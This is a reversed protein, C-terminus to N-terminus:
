YMGLQSALNTDSFGLDIAKQMSQQSADMQGLQKQRVSKFFWMDANEPEVYEYIQLFKDIYLNNVDPISNRTVSYMVIGIYSLLRSYMGAEIKDDSEALKRNNDIEKKWWDFDNSQLANVYLQKINNEKNLFENFKKFYNKFNPSDIFKDLMDKSVLQEDGSLTKYAAEFDKLAFYLDGNKIYESTNSKYDPMQMNFSVNSKAFLFAMAQLIKDIPPWEHKGDFVLTLVNMNSTLPSEPPYYQEVFNFDKLGIITALPFNLNSISQLPAGAGCMLVGDVKQSGSFNFAMRAGGSFGALFIKEPELGLNIKSSNINQLIRDMYDQQNNEVNNLGIITCNYYTVIDKFYSLAMAGNAHPDIVVILIKKCEVSDDSQIYSYNVEPLKSSFHETLVSNKNETENENKCSVFILCVILLLYVKKM